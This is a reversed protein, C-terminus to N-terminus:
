AIPFEDNRYTWDSTTVVDQIAFEIVEIEPFEFQKM